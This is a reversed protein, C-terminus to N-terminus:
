VFAIQEGFVVIKVILEMTFGIYFSLDEIKSKSLRLIVNTDRRPYGNM